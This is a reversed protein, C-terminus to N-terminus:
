SKLHRQAFISEYARMDIAGVPFTLPSAHHQASELIGDSVCRALKHNASPLRPPPSFQPSSAPFPDRRNPRNAQGQLGRGSQYMTHSTTHEPKTDFLAPVPELLFLGALATSTSPSEDCGPPRGRCFRNPRVCRPCGRRSAIVTVLSRFFSNIWCYRRASESEPDGSTCIAIRVTRILLRVSCM